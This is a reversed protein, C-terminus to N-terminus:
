PLVEGQVHDVGSGRALATPTKKNTSCAATLALSVVLVISVSIGARM